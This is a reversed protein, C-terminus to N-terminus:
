TSEKLTLWLLLLSVGLGIAGSAALDIPGLWRYQYVLGYFVIGMPLMLFLATLTGPRIQRQTISLAVHDLFPHTVAVAPLISALLLWYSGLAAALILALFIVLNEQWIAPDFLALFGKGASRQPASAEDLTHIAIALVLLWLLVSISTMSIDV